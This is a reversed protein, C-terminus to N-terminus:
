YFAIVFAQTHVQAGAANAAIVTAQAGPCNSYPETFTRITQAGTTDAGASVNAVAVRPTFPLGNFCVTLGDTGQTVNATTVNLSRTADVKNTDSITAYGLASGPDGKDGKDGKTGGPLQGSKFDTALLSRNKIDSTTLSSNKVDGGSISSNKIDKGTLSGNAVNKGTISLAAYGTGGLAVFLATCAVVMSPSPRFRRM